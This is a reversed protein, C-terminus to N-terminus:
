LFHLDIAVPNASHTGMTSAKKLQGWTKEIRSQLWQMSCTAARPQPSQPLLSEPLITLQIATYVQTLQSVLAAMQMQLMDVMAVHNDM